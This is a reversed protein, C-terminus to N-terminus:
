TLKVEASAGDGVRYLFGARELADLKDTATTRTVGHEAVVAAATERYTPADHARIYERITRKLTLRGVGDADTM